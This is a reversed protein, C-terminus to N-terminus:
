KGSYQSNLFEILRKPFDVWKQWGMQRSMSSNHWLFVFPLGNSRNYTIHKQLLNWAADPKLENYNKLTVDMTYFPHVWLNTIQEKELDYWMFPCATGARYGTIDHFGMSHDHEIGQELLNHYTEPISLLLYHQRSRTVKKKLIANLQDIEKRLQKKNKNSAISPHIGIEYDKQLLQVLNHFAQLKPDISKDPGSGNSMLFFFKLNEKQDGVWKIIDEYTDFPDQLSGMRTRIRDRLSFFRLKVLDNLGGLVMQIMPRHAYAYAMDVDVTCQWGVPFQHDFSLEYRNKLEAQLRLRYLDVLPLDNKETKGLWSESGLVRGMEDKRPLHYEEMRSLLYFVMAPLDFPVGNHTDSAKFFCPLDDWDHWIPTAIISTGNQLLGCPEFHICTKNIDTLSYNIIPINEPIDEVKSVWELDTFPSYRLIERFAYQLRTSYENTFIVIKM